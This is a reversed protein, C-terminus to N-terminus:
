VDRINVVKFSGDVNNFEEGRWNFGCKRVFLFWLCVCVHPVSSACVIHMICMAVVLRANMYVDKFECVCFAAVSIRVNPKWDLVNAPLALFSFFSFPHSSFSLFSFNPFGLSTQHSSVRRLNKLKNAAVCLTRKRVLM